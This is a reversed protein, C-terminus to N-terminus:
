EIDVARESLEQAHLGPIQVPLDSKQRRYGASQRRFVRLGKLVGIVVDCWAIRHPDFPHGRHVATQHGRRNHHLEALRSEESRMRFMRINMYSGLLTVLFLLLYLFLMGVGLVSKFVTLIPEPVPTLILFNGAYFLIVGIVLIILPLRSRGNNYLMGLGLFGFLAPVITLILAITHKNDKQPQKANEKPREVPEAPLKTYCKPCTICNSPVPEGCKPCRRTM